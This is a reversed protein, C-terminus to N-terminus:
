EERPNADMWGSLQDILPTAREWHVADPLTLQGRAHQERFRFAAVRLMYVIAQVDERELEVTVRDASNQDKLWAM